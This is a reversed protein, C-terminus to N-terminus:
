ANIEVIEAMGMYPHMLFAVPNSDIAVAEHPEEFLVFGKERFDKIAEEMDTVKYCIHYPSNGYKKILGSVISDKSVPSVLEVVYGDKKMFIIDADRYEDYTKESQKEYGMDLFVKVAKDIKKVLYGIHHIEM